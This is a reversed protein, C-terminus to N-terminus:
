FNCLKAFALSCLLNSKHLDGHHALLHDLHIPTISLM